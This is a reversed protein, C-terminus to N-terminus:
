TQSARSGRGVARYEFGKQRMLTPDYINRGDFIVPRRLAQKLRDLDLQKFENWETVVIVGDCGAAMAYPDECMEVEPFLPRAVEMAVPDYGRVKAGARLLHGVVDISPAERMDDTNPKFALGFLGVTKGKLGGLMEAIQNV